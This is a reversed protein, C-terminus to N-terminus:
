LYEDKESCVPCVVPPKVHLATHEELTRWNGDDGRVTDCRPCLTVVRELRKVRARLLRNQRATIETLWALLVLAMARMTNNIAAAKWDGQPFDELWQFGFRAMAMALGLWAAIRFGLQWAALM